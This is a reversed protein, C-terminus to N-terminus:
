SKEQAAIAADLEEGRLPEPADHSAFVAPWNSGDRLERYRAADKQAAELQLKLEFVLVELAKTGGDHGIEYRHPDIRELQSELWVFDAKAQSIVAATEEATAYPNPQDTM